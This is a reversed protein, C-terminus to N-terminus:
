ITLEEILSDKVNETLDSTSNLLEDIADAINVKKDKDYKFIDNYFYEIGGIMYEYFTKINTMEYFKSNNTSTVEFALVNIVHDYDSNLNDLITILAYYSDMTTRYKHYTTRISFERPNESESLRNEELTIRNKNKIGVLALLFHLEHFKAEAQINKEIERYKDSNYKLIFDQVTQERKM